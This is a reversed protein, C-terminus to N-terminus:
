TPLSFLHLHDSSFFLDLGKEESSDGWRFVIDGQHCYELAMKFPTIFDGRKDTLSDFLFECQKADPVNERQSAFIQSEGSGKFIDFAIPLKSIDFQAWSWYYHKENRVSENESGLIFDTLDYSNKYPRWMGMYQRVKSNPFANYSAIFIYFKYGKLIDNSQFISMVTQLFDEVIDEESPYHFMYASQSILSVNTTENEFGEIHSFIDSATNFINIKKTM